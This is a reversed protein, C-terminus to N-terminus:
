CCSGFPASSRCCCWPSPPPSRLCLKPLMILSDFCFARTLQSPPQNGDCLSSPARKTSGSPCCGPVSSINAAVQYGWSRCPGWPPSGGGALGVGASAAEPNVQRSVQCSARVCDGWRANHVWVEIWGGIRVDVTTMQRCSCCWWKGM